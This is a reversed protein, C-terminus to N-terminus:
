CDGSEARGGGMRVNRVQNAGVIMEVGRRVGGGAAGGLREGEEDWSRRISGSKGTTGGEGRLQREYWVCRGEANSAVKRGWTRCMGDIEEFHRRRAGAVVEM